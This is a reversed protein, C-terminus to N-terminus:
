FIGTPATHLSPMTKKRWKFAGTFTQFENNNNPLLKSGTFKIASNIWEVLEGSEAEATGCQYIILGGFTRGSFVKDYLTVNNSNVNGDIWTGTRDYNVLTTTGCAVNSDVEIPSAADIGIKVNEFLTARGAAIEAAIEIASSPDTLQHDCELLLAGGGGGLLEEGCTNPLHNGLPDNCDYNLCNDSM